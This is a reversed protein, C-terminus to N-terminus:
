SVPTPGNHFVVFQMGNQLDIPEDQKEFKKLEHGHKLVLTTEAPNEGALTLLERATYPRPELAFKQQDIHIVVQKTKTETMTGSGTIQPTEARGSRTVTDVDALRFRSPTVVVLNLHLAITETISLV